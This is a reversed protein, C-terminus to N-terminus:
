HSRLLRRDKVMSVLRKAVGLLYQCEELRYFLAAYAINSVTLAIGLRVALGIWGSPALADCLLIVLGGTGAGAMTYLSYKRYYLWVPRDFVKKYVLLPTTWFPLALASILTGIFVGAIGWWQVLIISLALNIGAQGLPVFRDEHFIGATTKVTSVANRMGREYFLLILVILIGSSMVYDSGIWLRIFPEVLVYLIIACMSYLWFGLLLMGQFVSFIKERSEKAVLNGVSHYMNNSVQNVFTRCIDILMKYNSYIGVAAVSVFSSIILSDAGFVFYSGINQLVIAKVNKVINSKTETDLPVSAKKKLFPYMRDVVVSLVISMAITFVSEIILYYIFNETYYLVAIKLGTSLITSGTFALTVIYSKQCVSLFSQKYVFLYPVITNVLFIAYILGIQEVNSDKVIAGLFPFLCLGLLLVVLAIALYAKRYLGMLALIKPEDRDAVPKYLSYIISSGLGAEALTLMALISTFVAHIGLYEVGLTTIFVTRSVFSLATIIVQNGLGASINFLTHKSRM